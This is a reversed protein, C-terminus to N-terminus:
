KSNLTEWPLTFPSIRCWEYLSFAGMIESDEFGGEDEDTLNAGEDEDVIESDAVEVTNHNAYAKPGLCEFTHYNNRLFTSLLM